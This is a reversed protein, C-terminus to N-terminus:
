KPPRRDLDFRYLRRSRNYIFAEDNPTWNPVQISAPARYLVARRGSEVNMVELNSGLYEESPVLSEPAPAVIRVHHFRAGLPERQESGGVLRVFLGVYVSDGLAAERGQSTTFHARGM